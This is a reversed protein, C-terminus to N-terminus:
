PGELCPTKEHWGNPKDTVWFSWVHIQDGTERLIFPISIKGSKTKTIDDIYQVQTDGNAFAVVKLKDPNPINGSNIKAEITFKGAALIETPFIIIISLFLM